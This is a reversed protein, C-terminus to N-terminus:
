LSGSVFGSPKWFVVRLVIVGRRASLRDYINHVDGQSIGDGVGYRLAFSHLPYAKQSGTMIVQGHQPLLHMSAYTRMM